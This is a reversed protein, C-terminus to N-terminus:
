ESEGSSAPRGKPRVEKIGKDIRSIPKSTEVSQGRKLFLGSGDKFHITKLGISRNVFKAM